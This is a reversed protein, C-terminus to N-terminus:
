YQIATIIGGDTYVYSAGSGIADRYVYQVHLSNKTETLNARNPYGLTAYMFCFNDGIQAKRNFVDRVDKEEMLNRKKLETIYPEIVGESNNTAMVWKASACLRDSKYDSFNFQNNISYTACGSLLLVYLIFKM